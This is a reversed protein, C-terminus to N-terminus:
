PELHLQDLGKRLEPSAWTAQPEKYLNLLDGHVQKESKYGSLQVFLAILTIAKVNVYSSMQPAINLKIQNLAPELINGHLKSWNCKIDHHVAKVTHFNLM